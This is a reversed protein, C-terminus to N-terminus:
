CLLFALGLAAFAALAGKGMRKLFSLPFSVASVCPGIAAFTAPGGRGVLLPFPFLFFFKSFLLRAERGVDLLPPFFSVLHPETSARLRLAILGAEVSSSSIDILM